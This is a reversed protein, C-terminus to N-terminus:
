WFPSNICSWIVLIAAQVKQNVKRARIRNSGRSAAIKDQPGLLTYDQDNAQSIYHCPALDDNTYQSQVAVTHSSPDSPTDTITDEDPSVPQVALTDLENHASDDNQQCMTPQDADNETTITAQVQNPTSNAPSLQDHRINVTTPECRKKRIM